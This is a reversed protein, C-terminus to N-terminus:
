NNQHVTKDSRNIIKKWWTLDKLKLWLYMILVSAIAIIYMDLSVALGVAAISWVTAATTLGRVKNEEKIIMGAGLFGVGTVINAIIRTDVPSFLHVSILGLLCSGLAVVAHTRVGADNGQREREFGIFAGLGSAFLLRPVLLLEENWSM